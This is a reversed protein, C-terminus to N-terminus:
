EEVEQLVARLEDLSSIIKLGATNYGYTVIIADDKGAQNTFDNTSVEGSRMILIPKIGAAEAGAVDDAPSDGIFVVQEALLGTQELAIEFIRAAPKRTGVEGSIIVADFYEDLGTEPLYSRLHPPHDFNTLLVLKYQERLVSLLPIAEPDLYIYNQWAALSAEATATLKTKFPEFGLEASLRLLRREYVTLGDDTAHPPERRFFSECANAFQSVSLSLNSIELKSYLTQLWDDWARKMDGYVILTGYLDFFIGQIKMDSDTSSLGWKQM